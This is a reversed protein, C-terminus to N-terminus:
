NIKLIYQQKNTKSFHSKNHILKLQQKIIDKNVYTYINKPINIIFNNLQLIKDLFIQKWNQFSTYQFQQSDYQQLDYYPISTFALDYTISAIDIQEFKCNHLIITDIHKKDLVYFRDRLECLQKYTQINPQCCIYTGNPYAAKFGLLRGGFGACPDLVTPSQVDCLYKKYIFYALSPKFWSIVLRRASLGGVLNKYSFDFTQNSKNLGIRYKIVESMIKDDQWAQVPSISRNFSSKYYNHFISKLYQSGANNCANYKITNNQQINKYSFTQLNFISQQLTTNTTPYPFEPQFTHIFKLFLSLYKKLKQQGNTQKYKILYQKSVINTIYNVSYNQNYQLNLIDTYAILDQNTYRLRKLTINKNKAINDKNFDNIKTNMTMITLGSMKQVHFVEGDIQIITNYQPLYFDYNRHQLKYNQIYQINLKQLQQKFSIQYSSPATQKYGSTFNSATTLQSQKNSSYQSFIIVTNYKQKYQDLTMNHKNKMHTNTLKIFDRGCQLCKIKGYDTQLIKAKNMLDFRHDFKQRQEPYDTCYQLITIQPHKQVLHNNISKYHKLTKGCIRCYDKKQLTFYQKFKDSTKIQMGHATRLHRTLAGSTNITDAYEHKCINCVMVEGTFKVNRNTNM